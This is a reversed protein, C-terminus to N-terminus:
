LGQFGKLLKKKKKILFNFLGKFWPSLTFLAYINLDTNQIKTVLTNNVDLRSTPAQPLLQSFGKDLKRLVGLCQKM